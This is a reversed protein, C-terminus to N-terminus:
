TLAGCGQPGHSYREIDPFELHRQYKGSAIHLETAERFKMFAKYCKCYGYLFVGMKISLVTEGQGARDKIHLGPHNCKHPSGGAEAEQTSLNHTHVM